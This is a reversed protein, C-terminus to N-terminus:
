KDIAQGINPLHSEKHREYLFHSCMEPQRNFMLNEGSITYNTRFQDVGFNQQTLGCMPTQIFISFRKGITHNM